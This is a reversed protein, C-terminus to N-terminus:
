TVENISFFKVQGLLPKPRTDPDGKHDARATCGHHPMLMQRSHHSPPNPLRLALFSTAGFTGAASVQHVCFVGPTPPGQWTGLTHGHSPVQKQSGQNVRKHLTSPTLQGEHSPARNLSIHKM